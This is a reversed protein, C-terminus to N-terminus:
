QFILTVTKVLMLRMPKITILSLQVKCDVDLVDLGNKQNERMCCTLMGHM